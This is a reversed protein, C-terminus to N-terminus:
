TKNLKKLTTLKATRKDNNNVCKHNSRCHRLDFGTTARKWVPRRDNWGDDCDQYGYQHDRAVAVGATRPGPRVPGLFPLLQNFRLHLLRVVAARHSCVVRARHQDAVRTRHRTSVAFDCYTTWEGVAVPLRSHSHGNNTIFSNTVYM